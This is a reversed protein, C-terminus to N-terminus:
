TMQTNYHRPSPELHHEALSYCCTLGFVVQMHILNQKRVGCSKVCANSFFVCADFLCRMREFNLEDVCTVAVYKHCTRKNREVLM